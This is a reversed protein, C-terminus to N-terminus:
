KTSDRRGFEPLIQTKARCKLGDLVPYRGRSPLSLRRKHVSVQSALHSRDLQLALGVHYLFSEHGEMSLAKERKHHFYQEYLSAITALAM